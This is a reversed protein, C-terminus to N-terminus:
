HKGGGKDGGKKDGKKDDKKEKPKSGWGFFFWGFLAALILLGIDSM